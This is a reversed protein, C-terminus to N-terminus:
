DKARELQELDVQEIKDFRSAIKQASTQVRQMDDNAQQIHGALKAMRDQFRLFDKGLKNLHSQILDIQERRAADKLIVAATNLIAWLTTPSVIWVRARHAEDVLDQHNAQIEAFVAEAPIFMMAGDATTDPVIYRESIDRIHKKIDQKFQRSFINQDSPSVDSQTLRQYSELPFKSDIAIVGTPEPLFLVCDAIRGNPLTHQLSFSAPPLFNEILNALQIEGFAGRSRKDDLIKQLGVVETSLATIKKQAEDILALRQVIDNFTETTRDFGDALRKDVQGSIERLRQDTNKSLADLRANLSQTHRALLENIQTGFAQFNTLVSEQLQRTTEGHRVEVAQQNASLSSKIQDKLESAQQQARSRESSLEQNLQLRVQEVKEVMNERLTASDDSSQTLLQILRRDILEANDRSAATASLVQRIDDEQGLLRKSRVLVWIVAVGIVLNLGILLWLLAGSNISHAVDNHM